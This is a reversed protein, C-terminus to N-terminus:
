SGYSIIQCDFRDLKWLLGVDDDRVKKYYIVEMRRVPYYLVVAYDTTGAPAQAEVLKVMRAMPKLAGDHDDAFGSRALAHLLQIPKKGGDLSYDYTEVPDERFVPEMGNTDPRLSWKGKM